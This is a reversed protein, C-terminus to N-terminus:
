NILSVVNWRRDVRRKKHESERVNGPNAWLKSPLNGRREIIPMYLTVRDILSVVDSQPDWWNEPFWIQSGSRPSRSLLFADYNDDETRNGKPLPASGSDAMPSPYYRWQTGTVTLREVKEVDNWALM